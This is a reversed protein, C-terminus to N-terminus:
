QSTQRAGLQNLRIFRQGVLGVSAPREQLDTDCAIGVRFRLPASGVHQRIVGDYGRRSKSIRDLSRIESDLLILNELSM